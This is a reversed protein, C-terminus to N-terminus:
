WLLWVLAGGIIAYTKYRSLRKETKLNRDAEDLVLETKEMTEKFEASLNDSSAIYKELEKIRDVKAPLDTYDDVMANFALAGALVNDASREFFKQFDVQSPLFKM